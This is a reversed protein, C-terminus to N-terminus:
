YILCIEFKRQRTKQVPHCANLGVETLRRQVFLKINFIFYQKNISTIIM